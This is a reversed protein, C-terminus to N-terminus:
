IHILSLRQEGAEFLTRRELVCFGSARECSFWSQERRFVLILCAGLLLLMGALKLPWVSGKREGLM